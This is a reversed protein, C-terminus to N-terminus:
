TDLSRCVPSGDLLLVRRGLRSLALALNVTCFGTGVGGRGATMWIRKAGM